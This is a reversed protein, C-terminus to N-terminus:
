RMSGLWAWTALPLGLTLPRAGSHPAKGQDAYAESRFVEEGEFFTLLVKATHIEAADIELINRDLVIFDARKGVELTGIEDELFAAFAGNRTFSEIMQHVSVSEAPNLAQEFNPEVYAEAGAPVTRRVGIEIALLPDPPWTVPYDSSSAVIVGQDFFSKMPYQRDAREQGVYEVAQTYYTDIVFWYPQPVAIVNLEAFRGIDESNVLQLHTIMHRADREGNAARAYELGDLTIRTAADGISHVHIQLGARDLAACMENYHAQDWLLEGRSQPMHLYPQELYATGGELVGDIFIKAGVIEFRGGAEQDRLRVVEDVVDLTDDPEVGVAALLRMKMQGSTEFDHLAQLEGAGGGPLHPIYVTTIGLSHAFQQFHQLGELLQERTYPPIVDAVLEMASERLTGSPAGDASREIVGGEPDPTEATIGALAMAKSNVWVSHYDESALVVPIDPVVEDLTAARPGNPGFVANVWGGGKIGQIGPHLALFDRLAQQYEEVSTLGYLWVEYLESVAATAHAHSDVFAPLVLRGQLDIVRTDRGVYRRVGKDDGIYVIRGARVAMAQAVARDASVTYLIGNILALDAPPVAPQCSALGLLLFVPLLLPAMRM